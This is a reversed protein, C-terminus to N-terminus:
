SFGPITLSWLPRRAVIWQAEGQTQHQNTEVGSMLCIQGSFVPAAAQLGPQAILWAFVNALTHVDICSSDVATELMRERLTFLVSPCETPFDTSHLVVYPCMHAVHAMRQLHFILPTGRCGPQGFCWAGIPLVM